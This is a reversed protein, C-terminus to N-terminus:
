FVGLRGIADVLLWLGLLGILWWIAEGASRELWVSLRELRPALWRHAVIRLALLVLGPLAMVAVYAALVALQGPLALGSTGILALAGLYPLMSAAEILGAALAVGVVTAARSGEAVLAGVWQGSRNPAGAAARRAQAAKAWRTEPWFSGVLLGAGVLLRIWDVTRNSDLWNWAGALADAGLLLAVGLGFYFISITALYLLVRGARVQPHALVLVPIVLTGLSTSDVLALGALGLLVGLEM